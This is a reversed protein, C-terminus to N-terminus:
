LPPKLIKGLLDAIANSKSSEKKVMFLQSNENDISFAYSPDDYDKISVDVLGKEKLRRVIKEWAAQHRKDLSAGIAEAQKQLFKLNEKGEKTIQSLEENQEKILEDDNLNILFKM